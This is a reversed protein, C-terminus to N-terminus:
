QKLVEVDINRLYFKTFTTEKSWDAVDLISKMSAGKYLAWSPGIARTSHAKVKVSKDEYAIKITQVIWNSITQTSVPQHPKNLALFIKKEQNGDPKIRFVKTQKLYWYLARKPDLRHNVAFAPVFIKSGFHNM